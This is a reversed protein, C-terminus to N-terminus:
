ALHGRAAGYLETQPTFFWSRIFEDLLAGATEADLDPSRGALEGAAHDRLAVVLDGYLAAEQMSM